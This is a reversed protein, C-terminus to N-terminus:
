VYPFMSINVHAPNLGMDMQTQTRELTYEQRLTAYGGFHFNQLKKINKNKVMKDKAHM